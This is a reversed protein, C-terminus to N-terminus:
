RGIQRTCLCDVIWAFRRASDSFFVPCQWTNVLMCLSVCRCILGNRGLIFFGMAYGLRSWTRYCEVMLIGGEVRYVMHM